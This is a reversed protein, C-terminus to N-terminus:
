PEGLYDEIVQMQRPSLKRQTERYGVDKLAALLGRTDRIEQRFALLASKYSRGPYYRMATNGFQNRLRSKPHSRKM